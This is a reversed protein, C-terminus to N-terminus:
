CVSCTAWDSLAFLARQLREMDVHNVIQVYMKVDDTIIIIQLLLM